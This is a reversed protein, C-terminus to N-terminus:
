VKYYLLPNTDYSMHPFMSPYGMISIFLYFIIFKLPHFLGLNIFTVDRM